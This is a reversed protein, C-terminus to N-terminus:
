VQATNIVEQSRGPTFISFKAVAIMTAIAKAIRLVKILGTSIKRVMGTVIMVSPSKKSTMLANIMMSIPLITGPNTTSPKQHANSKLIIRLIM